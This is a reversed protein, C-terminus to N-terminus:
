KPLLSYKLSTETLIGLKFCFKGVTVRSIAEFLHFYRFTPQGSTAITVVKSTCLNHFNPDKPQQQYDTYTGPVCGLKYCLIRSGNTM